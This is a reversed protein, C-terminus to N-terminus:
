NTFLKLKEMALTFSMVSSLIEEGMFIYSLLMLTANRSLNFLIKYMHYM